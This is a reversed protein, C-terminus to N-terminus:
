PKHRKQHQPQLQEKETKNPEKYPQWISEINENEHDTGITNKLGWHKLWKKNKHKSRKFTHCRDQMKPKHIRELRIRIIISLLKLDTPVDAGLHRNAIKVHFKKKILIYDIGNRICNHENHQPSTCTFLCRQSLHFWTNIGALDEEQCLEILTGRSVNTTDLEYDGVINEVKGRSM